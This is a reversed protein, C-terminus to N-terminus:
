GALSRASSSTAVTGCNRGPPSATDARQRWLTGPVGYVRAHLALNEWATLQTDLSPDQFIIGIRERVCHPERVVDCNAVRARGSTPRALTCLINITTTKGAGNPGLFAFFEGRAVTFDIGAVATVDGYQKVLEHVEIAATMPPRKGTSRESVRRLTGGTASWILFCTVERTPLSRAKVGSGNTLPACHLSDRNETPAGTCSAFCDEPSSRCNPEEFVCDDVAPACLTGTFRYCIASRASRRMSCVFQRPARRLIAPSPQSPAFRTAPRPRSPSGLTRRCRAAPPLALRPRQVLTVSIPPPADAEATALIPEDRGCQLWSAGPVKASATGGHQVEIHSRRLWGGSPSRGRQPTVHRPARSSIGHAETSQSILRSCRSPPEVM